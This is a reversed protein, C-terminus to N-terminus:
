EPAQTAFVISTGTTPRYLQGEVFRGYILDQVELTLSNSVAASNYIKDVAFDDSEVKPDYQLQVDMNNSTSGNKISTFVYGTDPTMTRKSLIALNSMVFIKMGISNIHIGSPEVDSYISLGLSM